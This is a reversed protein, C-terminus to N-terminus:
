DTQVVMTNDETQMYEKKNNIYGYRETEKM